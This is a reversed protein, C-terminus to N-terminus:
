CKGAIANKAWKPELFGQIQTESLDVQIKGSTKLFQATKLLGSAVVGSNPGSGSPSLYAGMKTPDITPQHEGSDVADAPSQGSIDAAKRYADAAKSQPGRQLQTAAYIACVFKQVVDPHSNAFQDSVTASNFSPYGISAIYQADMTKGDVTKLFSGGARQMLLAEPWEAYAGDIKGTQFAPVTTAQGALQIINVKGTLGNHDLLGRFEYDESSGILDGITKGQLQKIDTIGPRVVLVATDYTELWIVHFQIGAALAGTVPPNGVSDVFTYSGAKYAALSAPGSQVPIFQMHAPVLKQLTPQTAIIQEQAPANHDFFTITISPQAGGTGNGGSAGGLGCGGLVMVPVLGLVALRLRYGSEAHM